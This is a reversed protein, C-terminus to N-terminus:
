AVMDLFDEMSPLESDESNSGYLAAEVTALIDEPLLRSDLSIRNTPNAGPITNPMGTLVWEFTTATFGSSLTSFSLGSPIARVNYIVNIKYGHETGEVDNAILTRYSLNFFQTTQDHLFVGPAYQPSGVLQELLEPYTFAEIKGTYVKPRYQELHKFGDFYFEKIDRGRDESVSVLGSWAVGDGDTTYLVGRDLGTQYQREGIKDWQLATM